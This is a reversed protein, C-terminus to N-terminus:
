PNRERTRKSTRHLDMLYRETIFYLLFFFRLIIRGAQKKMQTQTARRRKRKLKLMQINKVKAGKQHKKMKVMGTSRTKAKRKM